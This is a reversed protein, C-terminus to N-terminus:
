INSVCLKGGFFSSYYDDGFDKKYNQITEETPINGIDHNGPLLMLLIDERLRQLCKLLDFKQQEHRESGPFADVLDGCIVVFKPRPRLKNICDVAKNTLLMEEDWTIKDDPVGNLRDILGMQIDAAQIFCFPGDWEGGENETQNPFTRNKPMNFSRQSLESCVASEM